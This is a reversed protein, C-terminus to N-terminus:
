GGEDTFIRPLGDHAMTGPRRKEDIFTKIYNLLHPVYQIEDLIVPPPNERFFALPDNSARARIDPNELSVFKYDQGFTHRLLTTKGSQRPGTVLAAPFTKLNKRLTTQLTREKYSM